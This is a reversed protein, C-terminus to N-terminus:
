PPSLAGPRVVLLGIATVTLWLPGVMGAMYQLPSVAIVLMLGGLGYGLLGIWRPYGGPRAAMGLAVAALGATGWLWPVTGIWHGFFVATEPVVQDPDQM